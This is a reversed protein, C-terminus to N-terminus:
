LHLLHNDFRVAPHVTLAQTTGGHADHRHLGGRGDSILFGGRRGEAALGCGDEVRIDGLYDGAASWFLIRNGRPASVAFASGDADATVSGCYDRMRRQLTDPAYLPRLGREPHAIAILPAQGGSDGQHQMAVAVHGDALAAIHRISSRQWEAPADNRALEHGTGRDIWVLSPHIAEPNLTRRGQDPHTRLGGNAVILTDGDRLLEHPGIGGSPWEGVRHYGARVDYVGVRGEGRQYDNETAYLRSADASFVAHGYFHRGESADIQGVIAGDSLEVVVIFRGPRRAVALAHRGDPHAVIAHARGPLATRFREAGTEDLGIVYHHGDADSAASLLRTEGTGALVWPTRAGILALAGLKLLDRRRM